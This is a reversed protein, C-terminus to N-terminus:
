LPLSRTVIPRTIPGEIAVGGMTPDHPFALMMGEEVCRRLITERENMSTLPHLDYAMVWSPPLHAVTPIVDGVFLLREGNGVFSPHLQCPTHGNSVFWEVGDIMCEPSQGEVFSLVDADGLAEFDEKLFSAQDKRTPNNAHDWHGKHIWHRAQPFRLRVPGGPDDYWYTLGGNHDFHLHTIVIDTVDDIRLDLARLAGPLADPDHCLAFRQAQKAEWKTGCGTDALIVRGAARDVAVLTRTTLLIRNSDDVDTVNQWLVKPVVGFMAGGDLRVTGNVVSHLEFRGLRLM